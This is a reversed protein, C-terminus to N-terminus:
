KYNKLICFATNINVDLQNVFPAVYKLPSKMHDVFAIPALFNAMHIYEQYEPKKNAMVMFSTTGMSHGVYFIKEQGSTERVKDIMAPLDFEGTEDFSLICINFIDFYYLM